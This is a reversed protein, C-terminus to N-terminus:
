PPARRKLRVVPPASESDLLFRDGFLVISTIVRSYRGDEVPLSRRHQGEFPAGHKRLFTRFGGEWSHIFGTGFSFRDRHRLVTSASAFQSADARLGPLFLSDVYWGCLSRYVSLRVLVVLRVQSSAM